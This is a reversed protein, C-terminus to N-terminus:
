FVEYWRRQRNRVQQQVALAQSAVAQAHQETAKVSLMASHVDAQLNELQKDSYDHGAVALWLQKAVRQRGAEDVDIRSLGAAVRRSLEDIAPVADPKEDVDVFVQLDDSLDKTAEEHGATINQLDASLDLLRGPVDKDAAPMPGDAMRCGALALTFACSLALLSRSTM